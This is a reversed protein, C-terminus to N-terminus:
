PEGLKLFARIREAVEATAPNYVIMGLEPRGDIAFASFELDLVGLSAHHLRKSGEGSSMVERDRWMADFEPSTRSLEDVLRAIEDTAGARAADARFAGVVYRAIAEWNQQRARVDADAFILRLINRRERPLQGYDTLLAAAARNWAVM